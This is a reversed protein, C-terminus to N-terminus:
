LSVCCKLAFKCFLTKQKQRRSSKGQRRREKEAPTAQVEKRFLWESEDYWLNRWMQNITIRVFSPRKAKTKRNTQSKVNEKYFSLSFKRGKSKTVIPIYARMFTDWRPKLLNLTCRIPKLSPPTSLAKRIWWPTFAFFKEMQRRKADKARYDCPFINDWKGKEMKMLNIQTVMM